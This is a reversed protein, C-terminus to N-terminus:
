VDIITPRSFWYGKDSKKITAKFLYVSNIDDYMVFSPLNGFIVAGNELQMKCLAKAGKYRCPAIWNGLLKAKLDQRGEKIDIVVEEVEIAEFGENIAKIEGILSNYVTRYVNSKIYLYAMKKGNKLWSKGFSATFFMDGVVIDVLLEENYFVLIKSKIDNKEYGRYDDFSPIYQGKSYINLYNDHPAHYRGDRDITPLVGGANIEKIEIGVKEIEQIM